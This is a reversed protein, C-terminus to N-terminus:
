VLATLSCREFVQLYVQCRGATGWCFSKAVCSLLIFKGLRFHAMHLFYMMQVAKEVWIGNCIWGKGNFLVVQLAAKNKAKCWLLKGM